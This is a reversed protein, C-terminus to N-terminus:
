ILVSTRTQTYNNNTYRVIFIKKMKVDNKFIIKMSCFDIKIISCKYLRLM